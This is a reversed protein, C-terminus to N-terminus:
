TADRWMLWVSPGDLPLSLEKRLTFGFHEYFPVNEAKSSELYAPLGAADARALGSRLLAAGHGQGRAAPDAGVVALYWHPEAPTYRTIVEYSAGLRNAHEGLVAGLEAFLEEDPEAEDGTRPPLWFSAASGTLECLGHPGYHRTYLTAFYRELREGRTDADPFLWRMMPDSAFSRALTTALSSVDDPTVPRPTPTTAM